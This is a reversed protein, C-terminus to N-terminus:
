INWMALSFQIVFHVNQLRPYEDWERVDSESPSSLSVKSVEFGCGVRFPPPLVPM